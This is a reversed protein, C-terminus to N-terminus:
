NEVYSFELTNVVHPNLVTASAPVAMGLVLAAMVAFLRM